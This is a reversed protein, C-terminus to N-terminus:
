LTKTVDISVSHVLSEWGFMNSDHLMSDMSVKTNDLKVTFEKTDNCEKMAALFLKKGELDAPNIDGFLHLNLEFVFPM